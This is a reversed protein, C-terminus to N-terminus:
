RAESALSGAAMRLRPLRLSIIETWSSHAYNLRTVSFKGKKMVARLPVTRLPLSIIGKARLVQTFGTVNLDALFGVWQEDERSSDQCDEPEDIFRDDAPIYIALHVCILSFLRQNRDVDDISWQPADLLRSTFHNYYLPIGELIPTSLLIYLYICTTM